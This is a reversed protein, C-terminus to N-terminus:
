DPTESADPTPALREFARETVVLGRQEIKARAKPSLSGALLVERRAITGEDSLTSRALTNAHAHTPRTWIAHDLPLAAVLARDATIAVVGRRLPALRALPGVREHYLRLLAATRAWLRADLESTAGNAAEIFAARNDVLDLAALHAVLLSQQHPSYWAHAIFAQQLPEPIGMVTLEIRNLRRLDEPAFDRLIASERDIPGAPEGASPGAGAFPVLMEGLGGVYSVWAFRNLEQQLTENSSYPDVGLRHAVQRKRSEFGLFEGLAGDELESREGRSLEAARRLMEAAGRPIGAISRVPKTVLNWAGVFPSRLSRALAEGFERSASLERLAALARIEAVRAELMVDGRAEFAGFRSAITYHRLFGDSAVVDDVRHDPGSRLGPPLVDAARLEPPSEYGLSPDTDGPGLVPLSSRPPEGPTTACGAGLLLLLLATRAPRHPTPPRRM